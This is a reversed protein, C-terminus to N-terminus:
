PQTHPPRGTAHEIIHRILSSLNYPQGDVAWVVPQHPDQRWTVARRTPEEQLWAGITERDEGVGAPVVINLCRQM